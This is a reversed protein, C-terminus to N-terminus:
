IPNSKVLFILFILSFLLGFLFTISTNVCFLEVESKNGYKRRKEFQAKNIGQEKEKDCMLREFMDPDYKKVLEEAAQIKDQKESGPVGKNKYAYLTETAEVVKAYESKLKNGHNALKDAM